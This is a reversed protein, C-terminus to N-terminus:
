AAIRTHRPRRRRVQVLPSDIDDVSCIRLKSLHVAAPDGLEVTPNAMVKLM